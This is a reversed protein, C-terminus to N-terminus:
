KKKRGGFDLGISFDFLTDSKNSIWYGASLNLRKIRYGIAPRVSMNATDFIMKMDCFYASKKDVINDEFRVDAYAIAGGGGIIGFLGIGCGAFLHPNFQYGHTTSIGLGAGEQLISTEVFARYGHGLFASDKNINEEQAMVNITTILMAAILAIKKNRM